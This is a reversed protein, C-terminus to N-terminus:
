FPLSHVLQSYSRPLWIGQVDYRIHNPLPNKEPDGGEFGSPDGMVFKWILFGIVIAIPIVLIALIAQIGGGEIIHTARSIISNTPKPNKFFSLLTPIGCFIGLGTIKRSSM